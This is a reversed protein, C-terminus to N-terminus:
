SRPALGRGAGHANLNFFDLGGLHSAGLPPIIAALLDVPARPMQQDIRQAQQQGNENGTRTKINTHRCREQEPVDVWVVKRTEDRDKRILLIVIVSQVGPHSLMTWAPVDFHLCTWGARFAKRGHLLAPHHLPRVGPMTPTSSVPLVILVTYFGTRSHDLDTMSMKHQISESRATARHKMVALISCSRAAISRFLKRIAESLFLGIAHPILAAM